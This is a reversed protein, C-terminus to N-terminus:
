GSASHVAAADADFRDRLQQALDAVTAAYPESRNYGLLAEFNDTGARWEQRTRGSSDLFPLAILRVPETAALEQESRVGLQLAQGWRMVPDGDPSAGLEDPPLRDLALNVPLDARWGHESLFHGVSGIADSASHVLDIRGDHDFDLAFRRISSPLFQPLGIAGAISGRYGAPDSGLEHCLLLLQALEARYEESRRPCDFALTMLVDLTSHQGTVRGYGSEIGIIAVIIEAPVGFQAQSRELADQHKWWFSLGRALRHEDIQRLRFRRWDRLPAPTPSMWRVAAACPRAARLCSQVWDPPLDFQETMRAAFARVPPRSWFLAPAPAARVPSALTGRVVGLAAGALALAVLRRRAPRPAPASM